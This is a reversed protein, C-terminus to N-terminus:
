QLDKPVVLDDLDYVKSGTLGLFHQTLLAGRAFRKPASQTGDHTATATFEPGIAHAAVPPAVFWRKEETRSFRGSGDTKVSRPKEDASDVRAITVVAGAIPTGTVDVVRGSVPPVVTTTCGVLNMITFLTLLQVFHRQM